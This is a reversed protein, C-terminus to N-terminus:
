RPESGESWMEDPWATDHPKPRPELGQRRALLAEHRRRIKGTRCDTTTIAIDVDPFGDGDVDRIGFKFRHTLFQPLGLCQGIGEMWTAQGGWGDKLSAYGVIRYEFGGRGDMGYWVVHQGGSKDWVLIPTSSIVPLGPDIKYFNPLAKPDVVYTGTRGMTGNSASVLMHGNALPCVVNAGADAHLAWKVVAQVLPSPDNEQPDIVCPAAARVTSTGLLWVLAVVRWRWSM